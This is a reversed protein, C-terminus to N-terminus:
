YWRMASRHAWHDCWWFTFAEMLFSMLLAMVGLVCATIENKGKFFILLFAALLIKTLDTKVSQSSNGVESQSCVFTCKTADCLAGSLLYLSFFSQKRGLVLGKFDQLRPPATCHLLMFQWTCALSPMWLLHLPRKLPLRCRTREQHHQVKTALASGKRGRNVHWSLWHFTHSPVPNKVQFLSEVLAAPFRFYCNLHFCKM